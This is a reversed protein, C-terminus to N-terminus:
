SLFSLSDVNTITVHGPTEGDGLYKGTIKALRRKKRYPVSWPVCSLAM